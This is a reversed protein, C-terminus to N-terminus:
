NINVKHMDVPHVEQHHSAYNPNIAHALDASVLYSRRLAANYFEEGDPTDVARQYIRKSVTALYTSLAGQMSKSGIEEHDFMILINIDKDNNLYDDNSHLDKFAELGCHCSIQNDMRGSSIFEKHVGMFGSPQSDILNIDIDVINAPDVKLESAILEIIAPFERSTMEASAKPEPKVLKDVFDTGIFPRLHQELNFEFKNYSRTFHIALNPIRLLADKHCFLKYELAKTEPNRITVKGALGLDRDFWTHWIGGGYLQIAPQLYGSKTMKTMPSLKLAPSDTHTAVIKLCSTKPDFKKGISFALISTMNRTLYYKDGPNLKAWPESIIYFFIGKKSRKLDLLILCIRQEILLM